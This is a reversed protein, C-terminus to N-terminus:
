KKKKAKPPQAARVVTGAVKFINGLVMQADAKICKMPRDSQIESIIYLTRSKM